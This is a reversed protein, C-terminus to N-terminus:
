TRGVDHRLDDLDLSSILGRHHRSNPWCNRKRLLRPNIWLRLLAFSQRAKLEPWLGAAVDYWDIGKPCDAGPPAVGSVAVNSIRRLLQRYKAVKTSCDVCSQAHREAERAAEPSLGHLEQSTEASWPVLANLEDNDIHKDFPREM